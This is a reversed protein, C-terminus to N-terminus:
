RGEATCKNEQLLDNMTIQQKLQLKISGVRNSHMKEILWQVYESSQAGIKKDLILTLCWKRIQEM